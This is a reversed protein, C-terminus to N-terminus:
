WQLVVENHMSGPGFLQPHMNCTIVVGDSNVRQNEPLQNFKQCRLVVDDYIYQFLESVTVRRDKNRDSYGRIGKILAQAFYTHFLLGSDISFEDARSSAFFVMKPNVQSETKNTMDYIASGSHCDSIFVFVGKAKLKALKAFLDAYYYPSDYFEMVRNGGHGSFFLIFNYQYPKVESIQIMKDITAEVNTRTVNKGTIMSTEVNAKKLVKGLEMVDRSTSNLPSQPYNQVSLLLAYTKTKQANLSLCLFVLFFLTLFKQKM